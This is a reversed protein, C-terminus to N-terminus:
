WFAKWTPLYKGAPSHPPGPGGPGAGAPPRRPAPCLRLDLAPIGM